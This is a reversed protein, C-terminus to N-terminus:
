RLARVRKVGGCRVASRRGRPEEGRRTAQLRVLEFRRRVFVGSSVAALVADLGLNRQGMCLLSCGHFLRRLRARRFPGLQAHRQLDEKVAQVARGESGTKPTRAFESEKDFLAELVAKSQNIAMGIGLSMLFPLYKVRGWWSAGIERQTAVYFFSVSFTASIFIPLDLLLPRM